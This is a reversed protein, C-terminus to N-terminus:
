FFFYDLLISREKSIIIYLKFNSLGNIIFSYVSLTTAYDKPVFEETKKILTILCSLAVELSRIWEDVSSLIPKLLQPTCVSLVRINIDDIIKREELTISHISGALMKTTANLGGGAKIDYLDWNPTKLIIAQKVEISNDYIGMVKSIYKLNEQLKRQEEEANEEQQRKYDKKRKAILSIAESYAVGSAM